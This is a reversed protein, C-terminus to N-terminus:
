AAATRANKRRRKAADRLCTKCHRQRVGDRVWTVKTNEPSYEHGQPCHTRSGYNHTGHRRKDRHNASRTDWRLNEVRPNMRDGDNHCVELKPDTPTGLFAEAVLRYTRRRRSKGDRCLCVAPYGSTDPIIAILRGPSVAYSNFRGVLRDLSRVRGLNSVEYLGEYGVVPLWEEPSHDPM